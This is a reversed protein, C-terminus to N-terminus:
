VVSKRDPSVTTVAPTNVAVAIPTSYVPTGTLCTVKLRYYMTATINGTSVNAYNASAAGMSVPTTFEADVSSEWEYTTGVGIMYGAAAISASGSTCLSAPTATVTGAVAPEGCYLTSFEDAGMDPTASRANGDFDTTVAAIPTGINDLTTNTGTALHLDTNSVFNPAIAVSNLDKTTFTKWAALDAVNATGNYGLRYTTNTSTAGVYNNYNIDTFTTGTTLYVNYASSGSIAFSQVNRFINNRMDINAAAATTVFNASMGPNFGAGVNGYMNVTNNYFKLNPVAAGVRIGFANWTLSTTSYNATEINSIMNNAVLTGTTGTASAFNIGYAGYGSTSTSKINSIRNSNVTGNIVGAAIQIGSVNLSTSVTINFIYNNSINPNDNNSVFIGVAGIKEAATESGITNGIISLGTQYTSNGAVGIGYYAKMVSNNQITLNTNSAEAVGGATTGSSSMIAALASSSGGKVITNKITNNTAGNTTSASGIWLVTSSTNTTAANTNEITLSKDSAGSNSGDITVNDAGNLKIIASASSGTIAATVGAAPKVMVTYLGANANENMVIPFTEATSYTADTLTFVVNDSFCLANNYAAVAATLTAYNGGTGVTYTGGLIQSVSLTVANSTVFTCPATGSVVCRFSNGAYTAPSDVTLANSTASAGVYPNWTTGNTSFEWQYTLGTGTAAVSFSASSVTSCQNVAVPQTTIAVVQNVTLTAVDSTVASCPATGSVVVRYQNNNLSVSPTNITYAALTATAGTVNSWDTGNTSMQWQYSLGSGTAASTFTVSTANSCLTQNAPQTGIAVADFVTLTAPDSNIGGNAIGGNILCLYKYGTNASTLGSLVLSAANAGEISTWTTGNTSVQWQYSTVEGSTGVTFTAGANSCVTQNTPQATISVSGVTLSVVSSTAPTCPATGSVVCQFQKGNDASSAGVVTYTANIAGVINNWTAGNDTSVQWQYSIGTGTATITYAADAGDLVIQNNAQDMIVPPNNVTISATEATACGSVTVTYTITVTGESVATVQGAADVSAIATNSSTWVGGSTTNSLTVKEGKCLSVGGGVIDELVPYANVVFNATSAGSGQATTVAVVGTSAGNPMTFTLSTSTNATITAATGNVTVGTANALNAGTIIVSAGSDVCAGAPLFSTVVPPVAVVQFNDIHLDIDPSTSTTTALFGVKVIGSYGALSITQAAGTNSYTAAGTYTRVVNALSWTAGNDTSVIVRVIHSGLTSQTTTGNYSTVAMDFNVAYNGGAGLNISQSILWDNLTGYLNIKAAKNTGVNGMGIPTAFWTSSGSTLTAGLAGTAETWCVPVYTAFTQAVTPVTDVGCSTVVTQSTSNASNCTAGTARVRYYYTTAASLGTVNYSAIGTGNNPITVPYGALITAFTSSTSVELEYGADSAAGTWNATFGSTALSTAASSTPTPMCTVVNGTLPTTTLYAPAGSCGSNYSYIYYYYQTNASLGADTFSGTTANAVVSTGAGLATSGVALATGNTPATPATSSTSRVVMYGTPAPSPATFSGSLSTGTVSSFALATPQASPTTCGAAAAIDFQMQAIYSTRTGTLSISSPNPNTSDSFYCIGRNTVPTTWIRFYNANSAGTYSAANEDVAVVLNDTNNYLFVDAIDIEYWGATPTASVTGSFVQTMASSQIWDTNSTFATKTTHGLYITWNNGNTIATGNSYFRLKTIIGSTNIESKLVVQQSYSFVYYPAIPIRNGVNTGSGITVTTQAEMGLAALLTLALLLVNKAFLAKFFGGTRSFYNNEM